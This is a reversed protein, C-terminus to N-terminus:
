DPRCDFRPDSADVSIMEHDSQYYVSHGTTRVERGLCEAQLSKAQETASPDEPHQSLETIRADLRPILDRLDRPILVHDPTLWANLSERPIADEYKSYAAGFGDDSGTDYHLFLVFPSILVLVLALLAIIFVVAGCRCCSEQVYEPEHVHYSVAKLKRRPWLIALLLVPFMWSADDSNKRQSKM